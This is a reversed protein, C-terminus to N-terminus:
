GMQLELKTIGLEKAMELGITAATLEARYASCSGFNASFGRIFSGRSGQLLGGGGALGTTGKSAGDTNLTVWPSIPSIWRIFVERSPGNRHIDTTDQGLAQWTSAIQTRLFAGINSPIDEMRGFMLSNRWRWNWWLSLAFCVIWEPSTYPGAPNLNTHLWTQLSGTFFSPSRAPGSHSAWISRASPCDRFLHLLTKDSNLTCRKCRPDTALHRLVRNSNCLLREHFLLWIFVRIRQQVPARWAIDWKSNSPVIVEEKMIHMAYKISFAGSTSGKWYRLDGWESNEVLKLAAINELITAPLLNAFLEWKWGMEPDWMEEVTAGDLNHPIPEITLARLCDDSVWCHDWFLTTRGNGVAVASGKKIWHANETIGRWVNSMNPTPSFMDIDCRGKCYKHRLVRSWLAQPKALVRWGLKTLFAANAQHSSRLGLGGKERPLQLTEWSVLHIKRTDETGGWIFRKTRSNLSDCITRPIKATQMSYTALTNFTSKALTIRGALSLYKSKWGALRRDMKECLHAYTAKTVRSTLTPMGLYLGLDKTAEMGLTACIQDQMSSNVNKSFYVRSKPLSVKQGSAMCFRNLCDHIVEAQGM